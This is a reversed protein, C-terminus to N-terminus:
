RQAMWTSYAVWLLIATALVFELVRWFLRRLKAARIQDLQQQAWDDLDDLM